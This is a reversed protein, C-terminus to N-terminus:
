STYSKSTRKLANIVNLKTLKPRTFYYITRFHYSYQFKITRKQKHVLPSSSSHFIENSTSKIDKENKGNTKKRRKEGKKEM